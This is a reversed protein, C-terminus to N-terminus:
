GETILNAQAANPLTLTSVSHCSRAGSGAPGQRPLVAVLFPSERIVFRIVFRSGLSCGRPLVQSTNAGSGLGVGL